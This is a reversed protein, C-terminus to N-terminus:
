SGTAASKEALHPFAEEFQEDTWGLFMIGDVIGFIVPLFAVGLLFTFILSLVGFKYRRIIFQHM